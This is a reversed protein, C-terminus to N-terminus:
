AIRVKLAWQPITSTCNEQCCVIDALRPDELQRLAHTRVCECCFNHQCELELLERPDKGEGCAMCKYQQKLFEQLMRIETLKRKTGELSKFYVYRDQERREEELFKQIEPDASSDFTHLNEATEPEEAKEQKEEPERKKEPVEANPDLSISDTVQFADVQPDIVVWNNELDLNKIFM